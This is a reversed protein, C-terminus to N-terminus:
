EATTVTRESPAPSPAAQAVRQLRPRTNSTAGNHQDVAKELKSASVVAFSISVAVLGGGIGALVWPPDKEGAIAAGIPWGILAGGVGGVVAGVIGWTRSSSAFAGSRPANALQDTMDSPDIDQGGQQYSTGFLGPKKQIPENIQLKPRGACSSLLLLLAYVLAAQPSHM